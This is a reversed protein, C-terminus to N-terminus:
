SGTRKHARANAASEETTFPPRAVASEHDWGDAIRGRILPASVSCRADQTWQSATKREGFAEIWRTVSRNEINAVRTVWRCNDPAYNGDGDIRDIELGERYGNATAWAYFAPYDSNWEPCVTIGRAGYYRYVTHASNACRERMGCWVRYLPTRSLGHTTRGHGFRESKLCGCSKTQGTRLATFDIVCERGCECRCPIAPANRHGSVSEGIVTLRNFTTGIAPLPHIRPRGTMRCDLVYANPM